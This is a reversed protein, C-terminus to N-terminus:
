SARGALRPAPWPYQAMAGWQESDIEQWDWFSAGVAGGSRAVDLFRWTEDGSPPVQRGGEDAMNYGQGILHVPRLTSLRQLAEVAAAGPEACGWYVMAAFGDAYPAIARYPYSAWFPDTPRFVTAVLPRGGLTARVLGLYVSIRLDSVAVGESATELDASFGDLGDGEPGRWNVAAATWAADGVPDYLYPFGWGMVSLHHEHAKPVLQALTDAAYFGDKSDGVRVWLQHLGAGVAKAVIADADGGETSPYKWLWMGKGMMPELSVVRAGAPRPAPLEIEPVLVAPRWRPGSPPRPPSPPPPCGAMAVPGTPRPVPVPPPPLPVPPPAPAAPAAITPSVGVVAIPSRVSDGRAAQRGGVAAASALGAVLALVVSLALPRHV